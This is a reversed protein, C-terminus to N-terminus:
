ARARPILRLREPALPVVLRKLYEAGGHVAAARLPDWVFRYQRRLTLPLLGITTQNM